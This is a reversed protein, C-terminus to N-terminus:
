MSFQVISPKGVKGALLVARRIGVVLCVVGIMQILHFLGNNNFQWIVTFAISHITQVVAAIITVLIGCTILIAGPAHRAIMLWTYVVLAFIMGVGEYLIFILFDRVILQAVIPFVCGAVLLFPLTWRSASRGWGDGIANVVFLAVTLGLSLYLLFWFADYITTALKFGHVLVGFLSGTALLLMILCWLLIKWFDWGRFRYLFGASALALLALAADTAATTLEV